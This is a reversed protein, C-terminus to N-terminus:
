ANIAEFLIPNTTFDTIAEEYMNIIKDISKELAYKSASKAYQKKM